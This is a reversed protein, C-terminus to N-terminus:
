CFALNDYGLAEMDEVQKILFVKLAKRFEEASHYDPMKSTDPSFTNYGKNKYDTLLTDKGTRDQGEIVNLAIM